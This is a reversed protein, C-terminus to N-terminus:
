ATPLEYTVFRKVCNDNKFIRVWGSRGTSEIATCGTDKAWRQLTELMPAKWRKLEVGGCFQMSLMKCRPYHMFQTVVAGYIKDDEFAIWLQYDYDTICDKIDGVTYRGYTYKAAGELYEEIQGWCGEVYEKPVISIEMM